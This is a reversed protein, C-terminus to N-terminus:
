PPETCLGNSMYASRCEFPSKVQVRSGTPEQWCQGARCQDGLCDNNEKCALGHGKKGVNGPDGGPYCTCQGEDFKCAPMFPLGGDECTSDSEIKDSYGRPCHANIINCPAQDITDCVCNGSPLDHKTCQQNNTVTCAGRCASDESATWASLVSSATKCPRDSSGPVCTHVQSDDARCEYRREFPPPTIPHLIKCKGQACTISGPVTLAAGPPSCEADSKCSQGNPASQCTYVGWDNLVCMLDWPNQPGNSLCYQPDGPDPHQYCGIMAASRPEALASGMWPLCMKLSSESLNRLTDQFEAPQTLAATADKWLDTCAKQIRQVDNSKMLCESAMIDSLYGAGRANAVVSTNTNPKHSKLDPVLARDHFYCAKSGPDYTAFWDNSQSSVSEAAVWCEEQSSLYTHLVKSPLDPFDCKEFTGSPIWSSQAKPAM